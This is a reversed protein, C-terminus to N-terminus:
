LICFIIIREAVLRNVETERM